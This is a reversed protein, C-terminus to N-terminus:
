VSDPLSYVALDHPLHAAKPIRVGPGGVLSDPLTQDTHSRQDFM